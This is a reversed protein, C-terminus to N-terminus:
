PFSGVAKGHMVEIAGGGEDRHLGLGRFEERPDVVGHVPCGGAVGFINYGLVSKKPEKAASSASVM